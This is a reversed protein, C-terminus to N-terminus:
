RKGIFWKMFRINVSQRSCMNAMCIPSPRRNSILALWILLSLWYSYHWLCDLITENGGKLTSGVGYSWDIHLVNDHVKFTSVYILKQVNRLLIMKNLVVIHVVRAENLGNTKSNSTLSIQGWGVLSKGGSVTLLFKQRIQCKQGMHWNTKTELEPWTHVAAAM